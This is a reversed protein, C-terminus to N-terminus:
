GYIRYEGCHPGYVNGQADRLDVCTRYDLPEMFLLDVIGVAYWPLPDHPWNQMYSNEELYRLVEEYTDFSHFWLDEASHVVGREIVLFRKSLSDRWPETGGGMHLRFDHQSFQQAMALWDPATENHLQEIVEVAREFYDPEEFVGARVEIEHLEREAQPDGAASRRKLERIRRDGAPPNYQKPKGGRLNFPDESKHRAVWYRDSSWRLAQHWPSAHWESEYDIKDQAISMVRLVEESEGARTWYNVLEYYAEIDGELAARELELARSDGPNNYPLIRVIPMPNGRRKPDEHWPGYHGTQMAKRRAELETYEVVNSAQGIRRFLDAPLRINRGKSQDVAFRVPYQKGGPGPVFMDFEIWAHAYPIGEIAGQGIVTGHVLRATENGAFEGLPFAIENLSVEFCDGLESDSM